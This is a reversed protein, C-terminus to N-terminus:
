FPIDTNSMNGQQQLRNQLDQQPNYQIGQNQLIRPQQQQPAQQQQPQQQDQQQNEQKPMPFPFLNKATLGINDYLTGNYEKQRNKLDCTVLVRQGRQLQLAQEAAKAFCVVQYPVHTPPAGNYGPLTVALTFKVLEKDAKEGYVQREPSITVDGCIAAMAYTSNYNM